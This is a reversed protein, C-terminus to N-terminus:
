GVRELYTKVGNEVVKQIKNMNTMRRATFRM